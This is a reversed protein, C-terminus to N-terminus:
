LKCNGLYRYNLCVLNFVLEVQTFLYNRPYNIFMNKIGKQCSLSPGVKIWM